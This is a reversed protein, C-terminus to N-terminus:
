PLMWKRAKKLKEHGSEEDEFCMAGTEAERM